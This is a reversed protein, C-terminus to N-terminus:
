LSQIRKLFSDKAGVDRAELFFFILDRLDEAVVEKGPEETSAVTTLAKILSESVQEHDELLRMLRKELGIQGM